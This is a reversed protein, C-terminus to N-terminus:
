SLNIGDQGIQMFHTSSWINYIDELTANYLKPRGNKIFNELAFQATKMDPYAGIYTRGSGNSSSPAYAIYPKKYRMDKKITGSGHARKRHRSKQKTIQKKGCLNCFISEDPITKKCKKCIM